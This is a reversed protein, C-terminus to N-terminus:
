KLRVATRIIPDVQSTLVAVAAIAAFSFIYLLKRSRM